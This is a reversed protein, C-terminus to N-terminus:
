LGVAIDPWCNCQEEVIETTYNDKGAKNAWMRTKFRGEVYVPRGNNLIEGAIETQRDYFVVRHWAVVEGKDGNAMDNM